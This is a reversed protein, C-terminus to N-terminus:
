GVEHQEEAVAELWLELLGGPAAALDNLKEVRWPQIAECVVVRM